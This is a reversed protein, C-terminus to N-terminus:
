KDERLERAREAIEGLRGFKSKAMYGTQFLYMGIEEENLEVKAGALAIALMEVYSKDYSKEAIIGANKDNFNLLRLRYKKSYKYCYSELLFSNWPYGCVPFLAFTTVDRVACFHDTIIGSLVSDIEDVNFSVFRDAIYNDVDIRVMCDYLAQFAFQRNTGGTLEVVKDALESFTCKERGELHQKLITVADLGTNDKTLIKGNLIYKGNLVKNYIASLIATQSIEYNQEEIGERPVDSLSAFGKENCTTEVYELIEAEEDESIIFRDVLLYVGEVVWVFNVNGSIVRWINGIPIYPLREGIENVSCTKNEGWIRKIEDTVAQKETKKAGVAMFKKSFAFGKLNKQLLEKLMAESTIFHSLMWENHREMLAEYYIVITGSDAITKVIDSLEQGLDDSKAFVKGDVLTGESLIATKLEDDDEPTAVGDAEAFQRFRLLERYSDPKFGYQYHEKLISSIVEPAIEQKPEDALSSPTEGSLNKNNGLPEETKPAEVMESNERPMLSQRYLKIALYRRYLKIAADLYRSTRPHTIRFFRMDKVKSMVSAFKKPDTIQSYPLDSLERDVAYESADELASIIQQPTFKKFGMEALWASFSLQSNSKTDMAIDGTAMSKAVALFRDFSERDTKYLEVMRDFMRSSTLSARDPFFAHAIPTLQMTIGNVNRFKEDISLGSNIAKQRLAESLGKIIEQKRSPCKEIEWFADILLATEYQDWVIRNSM